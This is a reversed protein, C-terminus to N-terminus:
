SSGHSADIWCRRTVESILTPNLAEGSDEFLSWTSRAAQFTQLEVEDVRGLVFSVRHLRNLSDQLTWQPTSGGSITQFDAV